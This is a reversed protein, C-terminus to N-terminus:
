TLCEELVSTGVGRKQQFDLCMYMYIQKKLQEKATETFLSYFVTKDEEEMVMGIYTIENVLREFHFIKALCLHAM